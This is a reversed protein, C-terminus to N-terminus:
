EDKNGHIQNFRRILTTSFTSATNIALEAIIESASKDLNGRGHADSLSNRLGGLNTSLGSISNLLTLTSGSEDLNDFDLLERASKWLDSIQKKAPLPKELKEHIIKIVSEVCSISRTITNEFNGDRLAERAKEIDKYASYFGKSQFLGRVNSVLNRTTEATVLPCTKCYDLTTERKRIKCFLSEINANSGSMFKHIRIKPTVADCGAERFIKGSECNFCIEPNVENTTHEGTQTAARCLLTGMGTQQLHCDINDNEKPEIEM